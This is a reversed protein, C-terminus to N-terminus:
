IIINCHIKQKSHRDKNGTKLQILYMLQFTVKYKRDLGKWNSTEASGATLSTTVSVFFSKKKEQKQTRLHKEGCFYTSPQIFPELM